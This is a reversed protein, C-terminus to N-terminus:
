ANEDASGDARAQVRRVIRVVGVAAVLGVLVLAGGTEWDGTFFGVMAGVAVGGLAVNALVVSGWWTAAFGADVDSADVEPVDVRPGLEEPSGWRDEPDFETGFPNEPDDESRGTM